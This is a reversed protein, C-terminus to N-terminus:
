FTKDSKKKDYKYVICLYGVLKNGLLSGPTYTIKNNLIHKLYKSRKRGEYTLVYHLHNVKGKNNITVWYGISDKKNKTNEEIGYVPYRDYGYFIIKYRSDRSKLVPMVELPLIPILADPPPNDVSLSNMIINRVYDSDAKTYYIGHNKFTSVSTDNVKLFVSTIDTNYYEDYKTLRLTDKFNTTYSYISDLYFKKALSDYITGVRKRIRNPNFDEVILTDNDKIKIIKNPTLIRGDSLFIIGSQTEKRIEIWSGIFINTKRKNSCQVLLFLLSIVILCNKKSINM